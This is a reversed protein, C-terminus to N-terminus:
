QGKKKRDRQELSCTMERHGNDEEDIERRVCRPREARRLRALERGLGSRM